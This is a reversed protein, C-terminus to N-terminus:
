RTPRQAVTVELKIEEGNRMVTVPVKTGAKTRAVLVQLL